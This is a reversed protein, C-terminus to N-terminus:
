RSGLAAITQAHQLANKRRKFAREVRAVYAVTEAYPPVGHYRDVAAPGANYAALALSLNDHYRALLQDLYAAGGAINQDPRFADGVGLQRATGPMLQMLGRAGTRSVANARGGSEAQVVSALLDVDIDHRAGAHTLLNAISQPPVPVAAVPAPAPPDPLTEISVVSRDAIDIFNGSPAASPVTGPYLFLRLRASDVPQTSACDYSFGNRLTVRQLARLPSFATAAFLVGAISVIRKTNGPRM